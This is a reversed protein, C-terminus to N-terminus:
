VEEGKSSAPHTQALCALQEGLCPPGELACVGLWTIPAQLYGGEM